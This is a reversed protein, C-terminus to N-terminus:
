SVSNLSYIAVVKDWETGSNPRWQMESALGRALYDVREKVENTTYSAGTLACTFPRRSDSVPHRGYKEDLM